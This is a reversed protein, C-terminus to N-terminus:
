SAVSPDQFHELEEVQSLPPLSELWASELDVRGDRFGNADDKLADEDFAVVRQDLQGQPEVAAVEAPGADQHGFLLHRQGHRGRRWSQLSGQVLQYFAKSLKMGALQGMLPPFRAGADPEALDHPRERADAAVHRAAAGNIRRRDAHGDHGRDHGPNFLDDKARWRLGVARDRRGDKVRSLPGAGCMHRLRAASLGHPGHGVPRLRDRPDVADDAGAVGVDGLGLALHRAEDPDVPQRPRGLQRDDGVSIHVRAEGREVEYSLGLVIGLCSGEEHCGVGSQDVADAGCELVRERGGAAALDDVSRQDVGLEHEHAVQMLSGIGHVVKRTLM